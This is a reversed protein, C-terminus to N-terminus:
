RRSMLSRVFFSLNAPREALRRTLYGWWEQGYPLYVRVSEGAAALRRQEEPRIGYLMQFEHGGPGRGHDDAIRQAIAIMRPDHSAIMPYGDGALLVKLCRVYSLDIEHRDRWAVDAPEDYAGKCLRIRSGTGALDHCDQETRHLYAQLVGGTEPFERRLEHLVDLTADTVTHDEMDITVDTGVDRAAQCITRANELAIKDGNPLRLGIATLKVSVEASATLGRGALAHLLRLYEAVTADAQAEQLTDEGLFDLSVNMGEAILAAATEVAEETNEGPVYRAVVARTVPVTTVLRKVAQSKALLLMPQRLLSM